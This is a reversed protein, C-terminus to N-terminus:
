AREWRGEIVQVSLDSLEVRIQQVTVPDANALMVVVDADENPGGLRISAHTATPGSVLRGLRLRRRVEDVLQDKESLGESMAIADRLVTAFV